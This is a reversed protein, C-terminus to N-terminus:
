PFMAPVRTRPPGIPTCASPGSLSKASNHCPRRHDHNVHDPKSSLFPYALHPSRAAFFFLHERYGLGSQGTNCYVEKTWSGAHKGKLKGGTRSAGPKWAM